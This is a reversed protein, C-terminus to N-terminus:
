FIPRLLWFITILLWFRPWLLWFSPGWALYLTKFKSKPREAQILAIKRPDPSYQKSKPWLTQIQAELCFKPWLPGWLLSLGSSLALPPCIYPHISPQVSLHVSPRISPHVSEGQTRCSKTGKQGAALFSFFFTEVFQYVSWNVILTPYMAVKTAHPQAPAAFFALHSPGVMWCVSLSAQLTAHVRSFLPMYCTYFTVYVVVDVVLFSWAVWNLVIIPSLQFTYENLLWSANQNWLGPLINFRIIHYISTSKTNMSILLIPIISPLHALRLPAIKCNNVLRSDIIPNWHFIFSRCLAFPSM